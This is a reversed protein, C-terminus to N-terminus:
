YVFQRLLYGYRHSVCLCRFRSGFDHMRISSNIMRIFSFSWLFILLISIDHASVPPCEMVIDLPTNASSSVVPTVTLSTFM